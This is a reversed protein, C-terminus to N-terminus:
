PKLSTAPKIEAALADFESVLKALSENLAKGEKHAKDMAPKLSAVGDPNLDNKLATEIDMLDSMLPKYSERVNDAAKSIDDFKAKVVAARKEMNKKIDENHVATADRQWQQIYAERKARLDTARASAKKGLADLAHVNKSYTKFHDKQDGTGAAISDLSAMTEALKTEGAILSDRVTEVRDALRTTTDAKKSSECAGLWMLAVCLCYAARAQVRIRMM